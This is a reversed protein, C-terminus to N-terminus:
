NLSGGPGALLEEFSCSLVLDDGNFVLVRRLIPHMAVEYEEGEKINARLFATLNTAIIQEEDVPDM